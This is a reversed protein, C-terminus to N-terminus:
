NSWGSESQQLVYTAIAAIEEDSLRGKFSPMANKGNIVQNRIAELSNMEYKELADKKLTKHAIIVNNGGIHCASCNANFLAQGDPADAWVPDLICWFCLSAIAVWVLSVLRKFVIM